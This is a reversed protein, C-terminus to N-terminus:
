KIIVLKQNNIKTTTSIQLNYIGAKISSINLTQLKLTTNISTSYHLKGTIDYFKVKAICDEMNDFEIYLMDNAPNPYVKIDSTGTIKKNIDPHILSKPLM